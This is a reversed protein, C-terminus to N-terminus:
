LGKGGSESTSNRACILFFGWWKNCAMKVEAGDDFLDDELSCEPFLHFINLGKLVHLWDGRYEVRVASTWVNKIFRSFSSYKWSSKHKQLDDTLWRISAPGPESLYKNKGSTLVQTLTLYAEGPFIRQRQVSSHYLHYFYRYSIVRKGNLDKRRINETNQYNVLFSHAQKGLLLFLNVVTAM